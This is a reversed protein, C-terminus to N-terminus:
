FKKLETQTWADQRSATADRISKVTSATIPAANNDWERRIYTLIAALQDDNFARMSPMDLRFSRGAVEIPGRLGNLVIRVLRKETGLVWESDALPPALGEMGRGHLQHCAACTGAFLTKGSAFRAQEETTLPTPEPEPKYGPKGPWVILSDLKVMSKLSSDPLASKLKALAAPKTKFKIPKRSLTRVPSISGGLLAAQSAGQQAATLRLLHDIGEARRELMVCSALESLFTAHAKDPNKWSPKQLLQELLQLERGSLGSLIADPLFKNTPNSDLMSAMREDEASDSLQGLTLALQLQVKSDPDGSMKELAEIVAVKDESRLLTEGVHIAAARVSANTSALAARVVEISLQDLGQLTWLAHIQGFPSPGKAALNNLAGLAADDPHEVLLRQATERWWANGDSLHAAWQSPTESAFNAKKPTYPRDPVIRYIRGLHTPLVLGREESQKRLYTTVSIRHQLVGRYFDVMYLGGDPGQCFDVPRFREDTSALFEQKDYANTAIITGNTEVLINRRVLNGAPEAVFANGYFDAPFRDSRFIFPSCAATFEKLRGDRLMEPRYGRNIGPNVRAPWVFQDEPLKVNIGAPQQFSPNRGLYYDPILDARLQDSNSNYFLRGDDDQSLGFQGRFITGLREWKGGHFRFKATYSSAYIWNDRGWLLSNPAREPNALGPNRPDVQVGFDGAVEFKEDCVDDGNTDRCFWLKPPAGILVGDRVFMLARPLILHDLFTKRTDMIGDGN